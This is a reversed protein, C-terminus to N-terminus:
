SEVGTSRAAAPSDALDNASRNFAYRVRRHAFRWQGGSREIRDRYDGFADVIGTGGVVVFTATGVLCTPAEATIMINATLHLAGEVHRRRIRRMISSRGTERYVGDVEYVADDTFCTELLAFDPRDLGHVYQAYLNQVECHRDATTM